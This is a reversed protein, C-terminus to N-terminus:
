IVIEVAVELAFKTAYLAALAEAQFSDVVYDLHMRKAAYVFGESNCIVIGVGGKMSSVDFAADYNIKFIDNGPPKWISEVRSYTIQDKCAVVNYENIFEQIRHTTTAKPTMRTAEHLEENRLIASVMYTRSAHMGDERALHCRDRRM